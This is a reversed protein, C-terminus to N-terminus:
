GPMALTNYAPRPLATRAEAPLEADFMLYGHERLLAGVEEANDEYVEFLMRPRAEALLRRAGRLPLAEAGEIDIKLVTPAPFRELLWDLTVTMVWQREREGGTQSGGLGLLYNSCRGRQAICFEALDLRDSVACPIVAVPASGKPQIRASRRLLEVLWLDPEIALVQGGAGARAAAAFSFLGVNAGADWVVDGPRVLEGAAEVLAPDASKLNRRWFGLAADPTVLVPAGGFEPPLRRKLVRGRSLREVVRRAIV